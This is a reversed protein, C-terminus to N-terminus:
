AGNRVPTASLQELADRVEDRTATPRVIGLQDRLARLERSAAYSGWRDGDRRCRDLERAMSRYARAIAKMSPPLLGERAMRALDAGADREHPGRTRDDADLTLQGPQHKPV